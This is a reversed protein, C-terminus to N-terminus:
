AVPLDTAWLLVARLRHGAGRAQATVQSLWVLSTVGLRGCLIVDRSGFASETTSDGVILTLDYRSAVRRLEEEFGPPAPAAADTAQLPAGAFLVDVTTDRGVPTEQIVERLEARGARVEALGRARPQRLLHSLVPSRSPLEVVLTARSEHAAAAALNLALTGGLMPQDAVVRVTRVVDGLGTLTLHLQPWAEATPELVAPLVRDVRRRSRLERVAVQAGTHTIVRSQALREVEAEDGVTPRRLEITMAGAYGLALGLVLAALLMATPPVIVSSRSRVARERRAIEENARRASDLAAETRNLSDATNAATAVLVSEAQAAARAAQLSRSAALLAASDARTSDTPM